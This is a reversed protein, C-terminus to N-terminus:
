DIIIKVYSGTNINLNDIVVNYRGFRVESEGSANAVGDVLLNAHLDFSYEESGQLSYEIINSGFMISKIKSVNTVNITGFKWESSNNIHKGFNIKNKTLTKLSGSVDLYEIIIDNIYHTENTQFYKNGYFEIKISSSLPGEGHRSISDFYFNVYINQNYVELNGLTYTSGNFSYDHVQEMIRDICIRDDLKIIEPENDKYQQSTTWKVETKNSQSYDYCCMSFVDGISFADIWTIYIDFAGNNTEDYIISKINEAASKSFWISIPLYAEIDLTYYSIIVPNNGIYAGTISKNGLYFSSLQINGLYAGFSNHRKYIYSAFNYIQYTHYTNVDYPIVDYEDDYWYSTFM